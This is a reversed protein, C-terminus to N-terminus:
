QPLAGGTTSTSTSTKADPNPTASPPPDPSSWLALASYGKPRGTADLVVVAPDTDVSFISTENALVGHRTMFEAVDRKVLIGQYQSFVSRPPIGYVKSHEDEPCVIPFSAFNKGGMVQTMCHAVVRAHPPSQIYAVSCTPPFMALLKRTGAQNLDGAGSFIRVTEGSLNLVVPEDANSVYM